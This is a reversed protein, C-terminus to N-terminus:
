SEAQNNRDIEKAREELKEAEEMRNNKRLVKAYRKLCNATMSHNPGLAKEVIALSEKMPPGAKEYEGSDMYMDSLNKLITATLPNEKGYRKTALDNAKDYLDKAKKFKKQSAYILGLNNYCTALHEDEPGMKKKVIAMAKKLSAEAKRYNKQERYIQSLNNYIMGVDMHDKGLLRKRIKIARNLLTEAEELKGQHWLDAAQDNLKVAHELEKDKSKEIQETINDAGNKEESSSSQDDASVPNAFLAGAPISSYSDALFVKEPKLISASILVSLSITLLFTRKLYDSEKKFQM